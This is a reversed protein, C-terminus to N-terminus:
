QRRGGTGPPADCVMWLRLTGPVSQVSEDIRVRVVSMCRGVVRQDASVTGGEGAALVRSVARSCPGTREGVEVRESVQEMVQGAQGAQGAQM